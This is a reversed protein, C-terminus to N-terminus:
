QDLRPVDNDSLFLTGELLGRDLLKVGASDQVLMFHSRNQLHDDSIQLHMKM